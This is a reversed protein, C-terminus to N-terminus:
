WVCFFLLILILELSGGVILTLMLCKCDLMVNLIVMFISVNTMIVALAKDACFKQVCLQHFKYVKPSNFTRKVM